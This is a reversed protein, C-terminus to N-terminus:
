FRQFQCRRRVGFGFWGKSSLLPFSPRFSRRSRRAYRIMSKPAPIIISNYSSCYFPISFPGDSCTVVWRLGTLAPAISNKWFRATQALLSITDPPRLQIRATPCSGLVTVNAPVGLRLSLVASTTTPILLVMFM